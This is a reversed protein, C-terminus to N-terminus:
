KDDEPGPPLPMWHTVECYDNVYGSECEWEGNVTYGIDIITEEESNIACCLVFDSEMEGEFRGNREEPMRDKVIVWVPMSDITPTDDIEELYDGVPCCVCGFTEKCEKCFITKLRSTLADADILRM